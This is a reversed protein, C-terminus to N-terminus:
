RITLMRVPESTVQRELPKSRDVSIKVFVV